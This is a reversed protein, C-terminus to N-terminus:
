AAEQPPTPPAQQMVVDGVNASLASLGLGHDMALKVPDQDKALVDLGILAGNAAQELNSLSARMEQLQAYGKPDAMQQLADVAVNRCGPVMAYSVANLVNGTELANRLYKGRAEVGMGAIHQAEAQAAHWDLQTLSGELQRRLNDLSATRQRVNEAYISLNERVAQVRKASDRALKQAAEIRARHSIWGEEKTQKELTQRYTRVINQLLTGMSLAREDKLLETRVGAIGTRVLKACEYSM